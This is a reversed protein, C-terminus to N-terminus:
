VLDYGYKMKIIEDSMPVDCLGLIMMENQLYTPVDIEGFDKMYDNCATIYKNVIDRHESTYTIKNGYVTITKPQEVNYTLVAIEDFEHKNIRVLTEDEYILYYRLGLVTFECCVNLNSDITTKNAYEKIYNEMEKAKTATIITEKM